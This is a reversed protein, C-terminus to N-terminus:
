ATKLIETFEIMEIQKSSILWNNVLINMTWMM